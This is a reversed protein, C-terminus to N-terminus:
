GAQKACSFADKNLPCKLMCESCDMWYNHYNTNFFAEIKRMNLFLLPMSGHYISKNSCKKKNFGKEGIANVPCTKECVRCHEECYSKEDIVPDAPLPMNTVVASFRLLSGYDKHFVLQNKGFVGIGAKVAAHKLSMLGGVSTKNIRLAAYAPISVAHYGQQEIMDIVQFNLEDLQKYFTHQANYILHQSLNESHAIGSPLKKALVIVTQANNLVDAPGYGEPADHFRDASAFGMTTLTDKFRNKLTQKFITTMSSGGNM